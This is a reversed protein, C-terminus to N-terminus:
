HNRSHNIVDDVRKMGEAYLSKEGFSAASQYLGRAKVLNEMDGLGEYAVGLNYYAAANDPEDRIVQEWIQIAEEWKGDKAM